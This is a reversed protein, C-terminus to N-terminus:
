PADGQTHTLLDAEAQKSRTVLFMAADAQPLM